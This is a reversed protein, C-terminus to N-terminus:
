RGFYSEEVAHWAATETVEVLARDLPKRLPSNLPLAFAMYAPALLGRPAQVVNAFRTAILYQLAGVRNVVADSRGSALAELAAPLDAYRTYRMHQGDLYEAGSSDAVAALRKGLLDSNRIVAGSAVREATIRSVLSTTLLSILALSGLMWVVAILRGVPTKPTVDGYGVTTMTVAAWYVGDYVSAVSTAAPGGAQRRRREFSWMLAGTLLLLALIVVVLWGLDKAVALYSGLAALPGTEIPFAVAVGSRHAPYTFDVRALREPTITIAGIAADFRGSQVGTLVEDMQSVATFRYALQLAEAVRRWLDVSVGSFLGDPGVSGYPPVDYVAVILPEGPGREAATAGAGAVGLGLGVALAMVRWQAATGSGSRIGM